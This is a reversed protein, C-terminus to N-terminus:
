NPWSNKLQNKRESYKKMKIRANVAFYYYSLIYSIKPKELKRYKGSVICYLKKM